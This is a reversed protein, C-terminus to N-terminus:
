IYKIGKRGNRVVNRLIFPCSPEHVNPGSFRPGRPSSSRYLLIYHCYSKFTQKLNNKMVQDFNIVIPNGQLPGLLGLTRNPYDQASNDAPRVTQNGFRYYPLYSSGSFTTTSKEPVARFQIM